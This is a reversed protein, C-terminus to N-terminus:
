KDWGKDKIHNEYAEAVMYHFKSMNLNFDLEYYADICCIGYETLMAMIAVVAKVAKPAPISAMVTIFVIKAKERAKLDPLYWCIDKALLYYEEGKERQVALSQYAIQKNTMRIRNLCVESLKGDETIYNKPTGPPVFKIQYLYKYDDDDFDELRQIIESRFNDEKLDCYGIAAYMGALLVLFWFFYEHFPKRQNCVVQFLIIIAMMGVAFLPVLM